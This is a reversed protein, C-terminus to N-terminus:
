QRSDLHGSARNDALNEAEPKQTSGRSRHHSRAISFIAVITFASQSFYGIFVVSGRQNVSWKWFLDLDDKALVIRQVFVYWFSSHFIAGASFTIIKPEQNDCLLRKLIM